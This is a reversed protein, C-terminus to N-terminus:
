PMVTGCNPDLTQGTFADGDDTVLFMVSRAVDRPSGWRRLPITERIEDRYEPGQM